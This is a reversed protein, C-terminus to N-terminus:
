SPKRNKPGGILIGKDRHGFYPEAEWVIGSGACFECGEGRCMTCRLKRRKIGLWFVHGWPNRHRYLIVAGIIMLLLDVLFVVSAITEAIHNM